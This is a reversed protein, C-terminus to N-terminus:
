GGCRGARSNLTMEHGHLVVRVQNESMDVNKADNRVVESDLRRIHFVMEMDEEQPALKEYMPPFLGCNACQPFTDAQVYTISTDCLECGALVTGSYRQALMAQQPCPWGHLM